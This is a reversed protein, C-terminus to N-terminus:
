AIGPGPCCDALLDSDIRCLQFRINQLIYIPNRDDFLTNIYDCLVQDLDGPNQVLCDISILM